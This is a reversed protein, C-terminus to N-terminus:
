EPVPISGLLRRLAHEDPVEPYVTEGTQAYYFAADVSTPDRGTLRAFALAYAALQLARFRAADDRPRPGTKWDVVTVGGDHRDFVADIRGRVAVGAVVTEVAYELHRPVREAWESALFREQLQALPIAGEPDATEDAAGPLEVVDLLAAKAYHQEVWAHFETGRRAALAPPQPM